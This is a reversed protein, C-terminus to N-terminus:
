DDSMTPLRKYNYIALLDKENIFTEIIFESTNILWHIM